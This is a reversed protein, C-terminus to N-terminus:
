RGNEDLSRILLARGHRDMWSQIRDGVHAPRDIRTNEDHRIRIDKGQADRIIYAGGELVLVHGVVSLSSPEGACLAVRQQEGLTGSVIGRGLHEQTADGQIGFQTCGTAMVLMVSLWEARRVITRLM